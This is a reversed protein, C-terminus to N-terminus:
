PAIVYGELRVFRYDPSLTGGVRGVTPHQTTIWNDARSPSFWSYLAVTGAPQPRAPDFVYGELRGFRYDPDLSGGAAGIAAHQTTTWNDGREASFWRYLPITGVPAPRTPDFAYGETRYFGYDPSRLSSFCGAYTPGGAAHNDGRGPSWWSTLPVTGAPRNAVPPCYLAYPNAVNFWNSVAPMVGLPGRFTTTYRSGIGDVGQTVGVVLQVGSPSRWLLPGGSDGGQVMNPGSVWLKEDDHREYRATGRQRVAVSAGTEDRGWGVITFSQGALRRADRGGVDDGFNGLVPIPVAVSAPVPQDLRLMLMDACVPLTYQTATRPVFPTTGNGFLITITTRVPYWRGPVQWDNRCRELVQNPPHPPDDSGRAVESVCHGATLVVDPTILTGTCGGGVKVVANAAPTNADDVGFTIAAAPPAWALGAVLGGTLAAAAVAAFRRVNSM